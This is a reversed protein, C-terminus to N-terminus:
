KYKSYQMKLTRIDQVNFNVRIYEVLIRLYALKYSRSTNGDCSHFKRMWVYMCTNVHGSNFLNM